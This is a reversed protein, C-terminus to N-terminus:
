LAFHNKPFLLIVSLAILRRIFSLRKMPRTDLRNFCRLTFDCCFFVKRTTLAFLFHVRWASTYTDVCLFRFICACFTKHRWVRRERWVLMSWRCGHNWQQKKRQSTFDTNNFLTTQLLCIAYYFYFIHKKSERSDIWRCLCSLFFEPITFYFTEM